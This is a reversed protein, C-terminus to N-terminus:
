RRKNVLSQPSTFCAKTNIAPSAETTCTEPRALAQTPRFGFVRTGVTIICANYVFKLVSKISSLVTFDKSNIIAKFKSEQSDIEDLISLATPLTVQKFPDVGLMVRKLKEENIIIQLEELSVDQGGKFLKM